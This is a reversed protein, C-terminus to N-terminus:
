FLILKLKIPNFIKKNVKEDIEVTENPSASVTEETNMRMPSVSNLDDRGSSNAPTMRKLANLEHLDDCQKKNSTAIRRFIRYAQQYRQKTM